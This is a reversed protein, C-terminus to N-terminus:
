KGISSTSTQLPAMMESAFRTVSDTIDDIVSKVKEKTDPSMTDIIISTILGSLLLTVGFTAISSVYSITKYLAFGAVTGIALMAATTACVNNSITGQEWCQQVDSAYQTKTFKDWINSAKKGVGDWIDGLEDGQLEIKLNLYMDQLYPILTAGVFGKDSSKKTTSCEYSIYALIAMVVFGSIVGVIAARPHKLALMVLGVASLAAGTGITIKGFTGDTNYSTTM